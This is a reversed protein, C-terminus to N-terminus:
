EGEVEFSVEAVKTMLIKATDSAIVHIQNGGIKLNKLHILKEAVELPFSTLQNQRLDLYWLPSEMQLLWDLSTIANKAITLMKLRKFDEFSNDDISKLETSEITVSFLQNKSIGRFDSELELLQGGKITLTKLDGFGSFDTWKMREGGKSLKSDVFTLVKLADKNLGGFVKADSIYHSLDSNIIELNNM